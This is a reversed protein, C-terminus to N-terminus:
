EDCTMCCARLAAAAEAKDKPTWGMADCLSAFADDFTGADEGDPEDGEPKGKGPKVQIMLGAM